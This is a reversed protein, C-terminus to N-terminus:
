KAAEDFRFNLIYKKAEENTKVLQFYIWKNIDLNARKVSNKNTLKCNNLKSFKNANWIKNIFNRYGTVIEESLKVDRGPAAMSILTFRLSDAGHKSIIDLPDIVNGKSKSM